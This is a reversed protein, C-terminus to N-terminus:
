RPLKFFHRSVATAILFLFIGESNKKIWEAVTFLGVEINKTVSKGSLITNSILRTINYYKIYTRSNKSTMKLNLTSKWPKNLIFSIQCRTKSFLQHTAISCLDRRLYYLVAKFHKLFRCERGETAILYTLKREPSSKM